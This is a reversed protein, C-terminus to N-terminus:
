PSLDLVVDNGGLGERKFGGGGGASASSVLVSVLVLAEVKGFRCPFGVAAVVHSALTTGSRRFGPEEAKMPESGAAQDELGLETVLPRLRHEPM